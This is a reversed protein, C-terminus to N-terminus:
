RNINIDSELSSFTFLAPGTAKSGRQRVSGFNSGLRDLDTGIALRLSQKSSVRALEEYLRSIQVSVGDILIDRSISGPKIDLRPQATRFFDLFSLIIENATRINVM